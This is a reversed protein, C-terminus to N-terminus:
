AARSGSGASFAAPLPQRHLPRRRRRFAPSRRDAPQGGDRRPDRVVGLHHHRRDGAGSHRHGRVRYRRDDLADARDLRSSRRRQRDARGADGPTRLAELDVRRDRSSARSSARAAGATRRAVTRQRAVAGAAQRIRGQHVAQGRRHRVAGADRGGSGGRRSRSRARARAPGPDHDRKRGGVAMRGGVRQGAVGHRDHDLGPLDHHRRGCGARPRRDLGRPVIPSM